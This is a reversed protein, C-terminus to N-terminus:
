TGQLNAQALLSKRTATIRNGAKMEPLLALGETAALKAKVAQGDLSYARSLALFYRATKRHDLEVLREAYTVLLEADRMSPPQDLMAATVYDLTLIAAGKESALKQLGTIGASATATAESSRTLRYQLNGLYAQVKARDIIMRTNAPDAELLPTRIDLSQKFLAVAKAANTRWDKQDPNLVPDLMEDYIEAEDSLALAYKFRVSTDAADGAAYASYTERAQSISDISGAFDLVEALGQGLQIRTFANSLKNKVSSRDADSLKDYDAIAERYEEIGAEPATESLVQGIKTHLLMISRKSRGFAPDLSLVRQSLGLGKRYAALAASYDGLGSMGPSGLEDGFSNCASAAESLELVTADPRATLLDYTQMAARMSALAEQTKDIGFLVESRTKEALALAALVNSDAPAKAQLSEALRIAKDISQLAGKPNGENLQYANGQLNGLKTYAQASELQFQPNQADRNIGDLYAVAESVARRQADTSGPIEQLQGFYDFLLFHALKREDEIGAEARQQHVRAARSERIMWALGVSLVILVTVVVLISRRHRLTFRSVRYSLTGRRATVPRRELLLAIDAAMEEASRYREAPEFRIAKLAIADLDKSNLPGSLPDGQRRQSPPEMRASQLQQVHEAISAAEVAQPLRGALMWYLMMGLSYVDAATSLGVGQIHEPSAYRLTMPRMGLQTMESRTEAELGMLKLTGFDLLKVVGEQTVMVNSPKLDRHLILNRHVHAVADCLQMMLRLKEELPIAPDKCVDDFRRGEIYEMVVYPTGDQTVGADILSSINKHHLRALADRERYFQHVAPGSSIDRAILKIAVSQTFGGSVRRGLYVVGMGGRGLMQELRFAGLVRGLWPDVRESDALDRRLLGHHPNESASALLAEVSSNSALMQFLETALESDDGCWERVRGAREKEPYELARHFLEELQQWRNKNEVVQPM